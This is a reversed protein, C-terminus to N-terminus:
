NISGGKPKLHLTTHVEIANTHYVQAGDFEEKITLLEDQDLYSEDFPAMSECDPMSIVFYPKVGATPFFDGKDKLFLYTDKLQNLAIITNNAINKPMCYKLELFMMWPKGGDNRIATFICECQSALSGDKRKLLAPNLEINITEFPISKNDQIEFSSIVPSPETTVVVGKYPMPNDKNGENYHTYDSVYVTQSFTEKNM